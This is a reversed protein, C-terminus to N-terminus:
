ETQNLICTVNKVKPFSNFGWSTYITSISNNLQTYM